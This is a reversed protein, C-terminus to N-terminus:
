KGKPPKKKPAVPTTPAWPFPKPAPKPAKGPPTKPAPTKAVTAKERYSIVEESYWVPATIALLHEEFKRVDAYCRFLFTDIKAASAKAACDYTGRSGAIPFGVCLDAGADVMKQNRVPGGRRGMGRPYEHEETTYLPGLSRWYVAGCTDVGTADGNVLVGGEPCLKHAISGLVYHIRDRMFIDCDERSGTILLRFM